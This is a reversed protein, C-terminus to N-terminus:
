AANVPTLRYIRALKSAAAVDGRRLASRVDDLRRADAVSLYPAWADSSEILEVDVEALYQGEHVLKQRQTPM